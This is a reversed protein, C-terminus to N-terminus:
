TVSIVGARIIESTTATVDAAPATVNTNEAGNQIAISVLQSIYLSEGPELSNIYAEIDIKTQAINSGSGTITMTVAETSVTPSLVRIVSATTPRLVEIHADVQETLSVIIYDKTIAKFIDASLSLQNVGDVVTVTAETDDTINKAIDGVRVIKAADTFNATSDALKGASISDNVGIQTTHNSPLESGTIVEDALIMVDVTGLGQALPITYAKLVNTIEKAWQEYDNDNGGAPPKRVVNLFRALYDADSEGAKRAVDRVYAHHNLNESSATDPFIQDAIYSQHKYIGWLASAQVASKIFILSGQSSDEEPFQNKYDTLIDNLLQDFDKEYDM